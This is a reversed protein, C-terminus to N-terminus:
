RDALPFVKRWAKSCRTRRPRLRLLHDLRRIRRRRGQGLQAPLQDAADGPIGESYPFWESSTYADVVWKIRGDILVPYADNEYQLWPALAELRSNLDRRILVRSEPKVYESFLVQSSGLNLAWALRRPLSGIAVGGAGKYEYYANKEGLPFDFEKIGTDVVVYDNTAEGFYIRPQETKLDTPTRPPVDGIIFKPMGRPDAENVPSM